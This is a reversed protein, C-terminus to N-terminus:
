GADPTEVLWWAAYPTLWYRGEDDPEVARASM